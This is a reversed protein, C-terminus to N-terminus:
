DGALWDTKTYMNAVEPDHEIHIKVMTNPDVCNPCSTLDLHDSFNSTCSHCYYLVSQGMYNKTAVETVM